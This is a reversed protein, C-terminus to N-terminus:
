KASSVSNRKHGRIAKRHKKNNFPIERLEGGCISCKYKLKYRVAWGYSVRHCNLCKYAPM